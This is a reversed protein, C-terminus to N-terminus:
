LVLIVHFWVMWFVIIGFFQRLKIGNKPEDCIQFSGEAKLAVGEAQNEARCIDDLYLRLLGLLRTKSSDHIQQANGLQEVLTM